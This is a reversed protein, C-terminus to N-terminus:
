PLNPYVKNLPILRAEMSQPSLRKITQHNWWDQLLHVNQTQKFWIDSFGDFTAAKNKSLDKQMSLAHSISIRDLTPFTYNLTDEENLIGSIKELNHLCNLM